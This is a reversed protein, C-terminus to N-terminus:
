LTNDLDENERQPCHLDMNDIQDTPIFKVGGKSDRVIGDFRKAYETKEQREHNDDKHQAM